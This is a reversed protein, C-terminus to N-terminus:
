GDEWSVSHGLYEEFRRRAEPLPPLNWYRENGSKRIVDAGFVAKLEKALTHKTIRGHFGSAQNVSNVLADKDSSRIHLEREEPWRTEPLLHLIPIEGEWLWEYIMAQCPRLSAIKQERLADTHCRMQMPHWDALPYGDLFQHFAAICAPDDVARALAAFYGADGEQRPAVDLVVFRRDDTDVPVAWEENTTMMLRVHNRGVHADQGKREYTINRDTILAKLLRRQEHSGAFFAEDALIFLTNEMHGNFRGTIKDAAGTEMAYPAFLNAIARGMLTKGTGQGGRLVIAKQGPEGLNQVWWALLKLVEDYLNVNRNCIRDRLHDLLIAAGTEPDAVPVHRTVDLGRFGNLFLRGHEGFAAPREPAFVIEDVERRERWELWANAADASGGRGDAIRLNKLQLQFDRRSFMRGQRESWFGSSGGQARVFAWDRNIAALALSRPVPRDGLHDLLIGVAEGSPACRSLWRAFAHLVTGFTIREDSNKDRMVAHIFRRRNEEQDYSSCSKGDPTTKSWRDLIEWAEDQNLHGDQVSAALALMVTRWHEERVVDFVGLEKCAQLVRWHEAGPESLRKIFKRDADGERDGPSRSAEAGGLLELLADPVVPLEDRAPLEGAYARGGVTSPPVLVYAKGTKVDVRSGPGLVNTAQRPAFREAQEETLRFYRHEGGSPTRIVAAEDWVPGAAHRLTEVHDYGDGDERRDIDIVLLGQTLLGLNGSPYRHGWDRITEEGQSAKDPWGHLCPRKSDTQIPLLRYGKGALEIATGWVSMSGDATEMQSTMLSIDPHHM